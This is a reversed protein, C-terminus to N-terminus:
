RTKINNLKVDYTPQLKLFLNHRSLGVKGNTDDNIANATTTTSIPLSDNNLLLKQALLDQASKTQKLNSSISNTKLMLSRQQQALLTAISSASSSTSLNYNSISRSSSHHLRNFSSSRSSVSNTTITPSVHRQRFKERIQQLLFFCDTCIDIPETHWKTTDSQKHANGPTSCRRSASDEYNIDNMTPTLPSQTDFSHCRDGDLLSKTLTLPTFAQIPLDNLREKPLAIQTVCNRCVKQKCVNCQIGFTFTLLNFHVKRCTFCLKGYAVETYLKENFLLNELEARTLVNRIHSFEKYTLSLTDSSNKMLQLIREQLQM